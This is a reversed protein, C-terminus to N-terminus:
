TGFARPKIRVDPYVSVALEASRWRNELASMQSSTLPDLVLGVVLRYKRLEACRDVIMQTHSTKAAREALSARQVAYVSEACTMAM